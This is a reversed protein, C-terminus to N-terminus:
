EAYHSVAFLVHSFWFDNLGNIPRGAGHLRSDPCKRQLKMYALIDGHLQLETDLRNEPKQEPCM